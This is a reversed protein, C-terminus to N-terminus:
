TRGLSKWIEPLTRGGTEHRATELEEDTFITGVMAELMNRYLDHPVFHGLTEGAGDCLEVPQDSGNLQARFTDDVIMKNM